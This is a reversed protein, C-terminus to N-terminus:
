SDPLAAAKHPARPVRPEHAVHTELVHPSPLPEQISAALTKLAHSDKTPTPPVGTQQVPSSSQGSAGSSAAMSPAAPAAPVAPVALVMTPLPPPYVGAEQPLDHPFFRVFSGESAYLGICHTQRAFLLARRGRLQPTILAPTDFGCLMEVLLFINQLDRFPDVVTVAMALLNRFEVLQMQETIPLGFFEPYQAVLERGSRWHIAWYHEYLILVIAAKFIFHTRRWSDPGVVDEIVQLADLACNFDIKSANPRQSSVLWILKKTLSADMQFRPGWRAMLSEILKESM